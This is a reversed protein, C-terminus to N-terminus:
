VIKPIPQGDVNVLRCHIVWHSVFGNELIRVEAQVIVNTLKSLELRWVVSLTLNFVRKKFPSQDTVKTARGEHVDAPAVKCLSSINSQLHQGTPSIRVKFTNCWAVHLEVNTVIVEISVLATRSYLQARQYTGLAPNLM